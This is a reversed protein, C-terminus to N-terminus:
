LWNGDKKWVFDLNEKPMARVLVRGLVCVILKSRNKSSIMIRKKVMGDMAQVLVRGLISSRRGILELRSKGRFRVYASSGRKCPVRTVFLCAREHGMVPFILRSRARAHLRPVRTAVWRAGWWRWWWWWWWWWRADGARSSDTKSAFRHRKRCNRWARMGVRVSRNVLTSNEGNVLRREGM